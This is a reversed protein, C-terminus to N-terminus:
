RRADVHAPPSEDGTAQFYSSSDIFHWNAIYALTATIDARLTDRTTM